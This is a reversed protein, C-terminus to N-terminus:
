PKTRAEYDKVVQQCYLYRGYDFAREQLSSSGSPSAEKIATGLVEGVTESVEATRNSVLSLQEGTADPLQPINLTSLNTSVKTPLNSILNQDPILFSIKEKFASPLGAGQTYFLYGFFAATIAGIFIIIRITRM